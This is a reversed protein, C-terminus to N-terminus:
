QQNSELEGMAAYVERAKVMLDGDRSARLVRNCNKVDLLFVNRGMKCFTSPALEVMAKTYICLVLDPLKGSVDSSICGDILFDVIGHLISLLTGM